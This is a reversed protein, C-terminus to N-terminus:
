EIVIKNRNNKKNIIFIYSVLCCLGILAALFYTLKFGFNSSIMGFVFSGLGIGIDYLLFFTASATGARAPEASSICLTQFSPFVAGYGLGIIGAAVLLITTNTSFGVIFLGIILLTLGPYVLTNSGKSDYIKGIKPRTLIIVLALCIFFFMSYKAQGIESFYLAIYAVIASYAFALLFATFCIPLAKREIYQDIGKVKPKDNQKLENIPKEATFYSFIMSLIAFISAVILLVSYDFNNALFIGLAPGVVMALSMFLGFYGIGEGKRKSPIWDMALAATSTTAASFGFGNIFRVILLPVIAQTGLYVLNCIIFITLFVLAIKRKGYQDAWKGTFPRLLVTGLIYLSVILSIHTASGQLDNKVYIPMTATLLYFNSFIFFSSLCVNIFNKNWLKQEM